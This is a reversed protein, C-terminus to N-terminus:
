DSSSCRPWWARQPSPVATWSAVGGKPVCPAAGGFGLEPGWFSRQMDPRSGPCTVNPCAWLSPVPAPLLPLGPGTPARPLTPPLRQSGGAVTPTLSHPSHGPHGWTEHCSSTLLWPATEQSLPPPPPRSSSAPSPHPTVEAAMWKGVTEPTPPSPPLPELKSLSPRMLRRHWSSLRKEWEPRWGGQSTVEAVLGRKGRSVPM